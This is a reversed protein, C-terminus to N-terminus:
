LVSYLERNSRSLNECGEDTVAVVEEFHFPNAARSDTPKKYRGYYLGGRDEICLVMGREMQIDGHIGQNYIGRFPPEIYDLGTGHWHALIESLKKGPQVVNVSNQINGMVKQRDRKMEPKPVGIVAQSSFDTCYGKYITGMDVHLIDGEKQLKDKYSYSGIDKDYAFIDLSVFAHPGPRGFFPCDAGQKIMDMVLLKMIDEKTM